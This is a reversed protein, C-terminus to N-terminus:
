FHRWSWFAHRTVVREKMLLDKASVVAKRQLLFALLPQSVSAQKLAEPPRQLIWSTHASGM